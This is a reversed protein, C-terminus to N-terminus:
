VAVFRRTIPISHRGTPLLAPVAPILPILLATLGPLPSESLPRLPRGFHGLFPFSLTGRSSSCVVAIAVRSSLRPPAISLFTPNM